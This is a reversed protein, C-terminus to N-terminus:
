EFAVEVSETKEVIMDGSDMDDIRFSLTLKDGKKPNAKEDFSLSSISRKGAYVEAGFFADIAKGNLSSENVSVVLNRDSLNAVYLDLCNGLYEDETIGKSIIKVSDADYLVTGSEDYNYEFGEYASTKVSIPDTEILTEYTESDEVSVCFEYDAYTTVGLEKLTDADFSAPYTKTEGPEVTVFYYSDIMYGNVSCKKFGFSISKKTNNTVDTLLVNDMSMMDDSYAGLGKVVAKVGSEDLITTEEVTVGIGSGPIGLGGCASLATMCLLLAMILVLLKKMKIEGLKLSGM